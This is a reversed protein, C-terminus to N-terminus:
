GGTAVVEWCRGERGVDSEKSVEDQELAEGGAAGRAERADERARDEDRALLLAAERQARGRELFEPRLEEERGV